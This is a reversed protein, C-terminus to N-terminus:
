NIQTTITDVIHKNTTYRIAGPNFRKTEWRFKSNRANRDSILMHYISGTKHTEPRVYHDIANIPRASKRTMKRRKPRFKEASFDSVTSVNAVTPDLKFWGRLQNDLRRSETQNFYMPCMTGPNSSSNTSINSAPETEAWLLSRGFHHPEAIPNSNPVAGLGSKRLPIDAPSNSYIGSFYFYLLFSM